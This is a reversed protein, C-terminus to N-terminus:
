GLLARDFFRTVRRDYERPYAALGGTHQATPMEWLTVPGRARRAYARNMDREYSRGSSILFIPRPAIRAVMTALSPPPATHALVRYAGLMEWVYASALENSVTVPLLRLEAYSRAQAGEAVVAHIRPDRGATELVVEAGTSLGLAGIRTVGRGRLFDVAAETDRHWTWGFAEPRGASDGDGRADYLLVGYGHRALMLARSEIGGARDGGAGHVLVIVAGNRPHVYWAALRLGDSTRLTVDEHPIALKTSPVDVPQKHVLYVAVALPMVVFFATLATGVLVGARLAWRRAISRQVKPRLVIAAALVLMAAGALGSVLGTVDDASAEGARRIHAVHLGGDAFAVAGVVFATWAQPGPRLRGFAIALAVAIALPAAITAANAAFSTGRPPNLFADDVLHLVVLSTAVAYLRAAHSRLLV